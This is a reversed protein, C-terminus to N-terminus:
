RRSPWKRRHITFEDPDLDELLEATEDENRDVIAGNITLITLVSDYHPQLISDEHIKAGQKLNRDEIWVVADVLGSIRESVHTTRLKSALSQPNLSEKRGLFYKFSHNPWAWQIIQNKSMVICCRENTVESSKLLSATVSTEFKSSLFLATEISALKAQVISTVEYSPLLLESAFVNAASEHSPVTKCRSEINEEKCTRSILGHGPLIYHGLEHAITFRKRGLERISRRIAVLGGPKTSARILAGEFGVSDVEKIVLGKRTALDNLDVSSTIHFRDRLARAFDDPENARPKM